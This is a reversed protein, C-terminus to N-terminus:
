VLIMFDQGVNCEKFMQKMWLLKKGTSGTITYEAEDFSLTVYNQEKIIWSIIDNVLPFCEDCTSNREYDDTYSIVLNENDTM